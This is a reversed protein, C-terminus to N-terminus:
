FRINSLPSHGIYTMCTFNFNDHLQGTSLHRSLQGTSFCTVICFAWRHLHELAAQSIRLNQKLKIRTKCMQGFDLTPIHNTQNVQVKRQKRIHWGLSVNQFMNCPIYTPAHCRQTLCCKISNARDKPWYIQHSLNNQVKSFEITDCLWVTM